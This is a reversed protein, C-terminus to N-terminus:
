LSQNCDGLFAAYDALIVAQLIVEFQKKTAAYDGLIQSLWLM